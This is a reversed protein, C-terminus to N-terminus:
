SAIRCVREDVSYGQSVLYRKRELKSAIPQHVDAKTAM